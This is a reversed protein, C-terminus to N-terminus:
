EILNSDPTGKMGLETMFLGQPNASLFMRLLKAVGDERPFLVQPSRPLLYKDRPAHCFEFSEVGDRSAIDEVLLPGGWEAKGLPPQKATMKWEQSLVMDPLLLAAQQQVVRCTLLDDEPLGLLHLPRPGDPDRNAMHYFYTSFSEAAQEWSSCRRLLAFTRLASIIPVCDFFNAISYDPNGPLENPVAMRYIVGTGENPFEGALPDFIAFFAAVHLHHSVDLAESTIGCQQALISGFPYGFTQFLYTNFQARKILDPNQTRAADPDVAYFVNGLDRLRYHPPVDTTPHLETAGRYLSPLLPGPWRQTQGRYLYGPRHQAQLFGLLEEFDYPPSGTLRDVNPVAEKVDFDGDEVARAPMMHGCASCTYSHRDALAAM